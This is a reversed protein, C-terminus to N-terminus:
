QLNGHLCGGVSAAGGKQGTVWRDDITVVHTQWAVLTKYTAGQGFCSACVLCSPSVHWRVYFCIHASRSAPYQAM